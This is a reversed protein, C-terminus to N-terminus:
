PQRVIADGITDVSGGLKQIITDATRMRRLESNVFNGYPTIAERMGEVTGELETELQRQVAANLRERLANTQERFESRARKGPRAALEMGTVLLALTTGTIDMFESDALEQAADGLGMADAEAAATRAAATRLSDVLRKAEGQYDYNRIIGQAQDYLGNLLAERRAHFDDTMEGSLRRTLDAKRHLEVYDSIQRWQKVNLYVLWNILERVKRDVDAGTDAIVETKFRERLDSARGFLSNRFGSNEEFWADGRQTIANVVVAIQALRSDFDRRTDQRYANLSDELSSVMKQDDQLLKAREDFSSRYRRVLEEAVGLPSQLKLNILDKHGMLGSIYEELKDFGSEHMLRERDMLPGHKANRAAKASVLFVPPVLELFEGVRQEVFSRVRDKDEPPLVDAKNVVVVIKKGWDRIMGMYARESETFPREASTVFLVMDSRPVFERSLQEHERIVANTGPTDVVSLFRLIESPAFKELVGNKETVTPEVGHKLITVRATTPLAGEEAIDDGLLANVFASKGANFEGVVVLLFPDGMDSLTQNLLNVDGAPAGFGTLFEALSEILARERTVLTEQRRDLTEL